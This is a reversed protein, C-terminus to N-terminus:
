EEEGYEIKAKPYIEESYETAGCKNCTHLYRSPNAVMVAMSGDHELLGGCEEEPCVWEVIYTKVERTRTKM